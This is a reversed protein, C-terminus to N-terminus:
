QEVLRIREITARTAERDGPGPPSSGGEPLRLVLVVNLAGGAMRGRRALDAVKDTVDFLRQNTAGGHGEHGPPVPEGEAPIGFFVLNGAYSPDDETLGETKTPNLYVEYYGEPVRVRIGEFALVLRRRSTSPPGAEPMALVTRVPRGALEVRNAPEMSPASSSVAFSLPLLKALIVPRLPFRLVPYNYGLSPCTNLGDSVKRTVQAGTATYFTFTRNLWTSDGPNARGGGQALWRGWLRDINCHHLWFIPDQAATPVSGMWGGVSVHVAGHPTGEISSSFPSFSTQAFASATSVSSSPLLGGSNMASSRNSVFLPNGGSADVFPAPLARQAQWNWFPLTLSPSGSAARLIREFYLLYLRHWSFFHLTGHQCSNWLPLAPSALSGHIAAQYAWSTPDSAPRAKMVAVGNKFAALEAATLSRIDKRTRCKLILSNNLLDPRRRVPQANIGLATTALGAVAGGVFVRRKM